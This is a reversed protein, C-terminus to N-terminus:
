WLRDDAQQRIYNSMRGSSTPFLKTHKSLFTWLNLGNREANYHVRGFTGAIYWCSNKQYMKQSFSMNEESQVFIVDFEGWERMKSKSTFPITHRHTHDLKQSTPKQGSVLLIVAGTNDGLIIGPTSCEVIEKLLQQVVKVQMYSRFSLKCSWSRDVIIDSVTTDKFDLQNVTCTTSRWKWVEETKKKQLMIAAWMHCHVRREGKTKPIHTKNNGVRRGKYLWYGHWWNWGVITLSWMM